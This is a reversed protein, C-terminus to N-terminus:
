GQDARAARLPAQEHPTARRTPRRATPGRTDRQEGGGRALDRAVPAQAPLRAVCFEYHLTRHLTVKRARSWVSTLRLLDIGMHIHTQHRNSVLWVFSRFSPRREPSCRASAGVTRAMPPSGEESASHRAADATASLVVCARARFAGRVGLTSRAPARFARRAGLARCHVWIRSRPGTLAAKSRM